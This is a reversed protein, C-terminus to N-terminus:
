KLFEIIYDRAERNNKTAIQKIVTRCSESLEDRLEADNIIRRIMGAMESPTDLTKVCLYTSLFQDGATLYIDFSTIVPVGLYMREAVAYSFSETFTAQLSLDMAAVLNYYQSTRIWKHNVINAGIDRVVPSVHNDRFNIHLKGNVGSIKFALVQNLINKGLRLTCFLDVNIGDMKLPVVNEFQSLDLTHPFYVAHKTIGALADFLRKNLLWHRLKGRELYKIMNHYDKLEHRSLESQGPTSCMILSPKIGMKNLKELVVDYPPGWATFLIKDGYEIVKNVNMMSLDTQIKQLRREIRMNGLRPRFVFLDEIPLVQIDVIDDLIGKLNTIVRYSGPFGQSCVLLLKKRM